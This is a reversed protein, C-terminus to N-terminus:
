AATKSDREPVYTSRTVWLSLLLVSLKRAVAVAARKKAAKKGRAALALGWERLDSEQGWRGLIHHACQVLLRRLFGDGSKTISLEPDRAGSSDRRPVMGLYAGVDRRDPFRSPDEITLVFSLATIPGVGHVQLLYKTEPYRERCLREIERAMSRIRSTLHAVVELLPLMTRELEEPLHERARLHFSDPTVSSPVRAGFAKVAGRVHNILRTRARILADRARVVALDARAELGRHRIPFLLQPGTRLLWCLFKADAKDGKRHNKSVLAVRHANAVTVEHGLEELLEFLWPSHMGVELAVRSPEMSGFVKAVDVVRTRVKGERVVKGLADEVHYHSSRDGVDLGVCNRGDIEIRIRHTM